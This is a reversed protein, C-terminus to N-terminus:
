LIISYLVCTTRNITSPGSGCRWHFCNSCLKLPSLNTKCQYRDINLLVVKISNYNLRITGNM